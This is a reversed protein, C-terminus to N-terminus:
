SSTSPTAPAVGEAVADADGLGVTVTAGGDVAVATLVDTGEGSGGVGVDLVGGVVEGADVGAGAVDVGEWTSEDGVAAWVSFGRIDGVAVVREGL